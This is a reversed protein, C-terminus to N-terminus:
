GGVRLAVQRAVDNCFEVVPRVLTSLLGTNLVVLLVVVLGVREIQRLQRAMGPPLLAALVRGGDLPPVPLLNFVALVCNIVV